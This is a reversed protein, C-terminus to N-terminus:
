SNHISENIEAIKRDVEKTLKERMETAHALEYSGLREYTDLVPLFALVQMLSFKIPKDNNRSLYFKDKMNEMIECSIAENLTKVCGSVEKLIACIVSHIAKKDEKSIKLSITKM